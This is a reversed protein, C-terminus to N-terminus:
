VFMRQLLATKAQTLQTIYRSEAAILADLNSFVEGIARQEELTPPTMFPVRRGTEITFTGVTGVGASRKIFEQIPNAQFSYYLFKGAVGNRNKFWIINGDKFFFPHDNEVLWPVGISGVGTVLLDGKEPVGTSQKLVEFTQRSIFLPDEVDRSHSFAVLDRARLFRVGATTWDRQHVRSVSGVGMLDGIMHSEWEGEFGGLRLEPEDAGDQPFMRQLLATKTQQLSAHKARHQEILADLDAFLEGIARQEKVSPVVLKLDRIPGLHLHKVTAGQINNLLEARSSGGTLELALFTPDIGDGPTIVNLDGGLLVGPVKLHSARVINTPTVDSAPMLVERGTSVVSDDNMRSFTTISRIETSYNTYLQGYLFLPYSGTGVDAKSYGKGRSFTAHDSLSIVNWEGDFGDFRLAPTNSKTMSVGM